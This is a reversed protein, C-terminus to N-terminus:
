WGYTNYHDCDLNYAEQEADDEPNASDAELSTGPAKCHPNYCHGPKLIRDGCNPCIAYNARDPTISDAIKRLRIAWSKCQNEAKFASNCVKRWSTIQMGKPWGWEEYISSPMNKCGVIEAAIKILESHANM